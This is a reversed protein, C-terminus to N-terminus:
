GNKSFAGIEVVEVFILMCPIKWPIKGHIWCKLRSELFALQFNQYMRGLMYDKQNRPHDNLCGQRLPASNTDEMKQFYRIIRPSNTQKREFKDLLKSCIFQWFKPVKMGRLIWRYPWKILNTMRSVKPVNPPKLRTPTSLYSIHV